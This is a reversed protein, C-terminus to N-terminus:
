KLLEAGLDFFSPALLIVVFLDERCESGFRKAAGFKRRFYRGPIHDLPRQLLGLERRLFIRFRIEAVRRNCNEASRAKEDVNIKPEIASRIYVLVREAAGELDQEARADMTPVFEVARFADISKDLDTFHTQLDTFKQFDAIHVLDQRPPPINM